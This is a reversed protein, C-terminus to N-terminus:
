RTPNEVRRAHRKVRRLLRPLAAQVPASLTDAYDFYQGGVSYLIAAPCHGYLMQASTLLAQPSVNHTFAGPAPLPSLRHWRIIGPPENRAADIFIVLTARSIPEALEPTLQHCDIVKTHKLDACEALMRAAHQGIGDDGRLPNGYGIVLAM